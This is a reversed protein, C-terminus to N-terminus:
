AFSHEAAGVIPALVEHLTPTGVEELRYTVRATPQEIRIVHRLDMPTGIVVTDCPTRAIARELEVLQSRSYGEAPLVAGVDYRDLFAPPVWRWM